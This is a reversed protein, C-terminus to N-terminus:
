ADELTDLLLDIEDRLDILLERTISRSVSTDSYLRDLAAKADEYIM